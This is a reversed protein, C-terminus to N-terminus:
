CAGWRLDFEVILQAPVALALPTCHGDAEDCVVGTIVRGGFGSQEGPVEIRLTVGSSGPARLVHFEEGPEVLVAAGVRGAHSVLQGEPARVTAASATHLGFPGVREGDVVAEGADLSPTVAAERAARAGTLLFRYLHVVAESNRYRGSGDLRFTLDEVRATGDIRLRYHRHGGSRSGHRHESL